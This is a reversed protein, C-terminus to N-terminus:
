NSMPIQSDEDPSQEMPQIRQHEGERIGHLLQQEFAIVYADNAPNHDHSKKPSPLSYLQNIREMFGWNKTYDPDVSALLGRMESHTEWFAMYTQKGKVDRSASYPIPLCNPIRDMIMHNIFGGDYVNNDSVLEYAYNNQKAYNEWKERFKQFEVIMETQRDSYSLDGKYELQKLVDQNKSWFEVWCREEFGTKGFVFGPLFLSDLENLDQDVVSGGIAIVDFKTTAGAKEIDFALVIRKGRM